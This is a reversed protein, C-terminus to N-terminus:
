NNGSLTCDDQVSNTYRFVVTLKIAPPINSTPLCYSIYGKTALDAIDGTIPFGNTLLPAGNYLINELTPAYDPVQSFYLRIQAQGDCTGDGNNRSFSTPCPQPPLGGTGDSSGGAGRQAFTKDSFLAAIIILCISIQKKM